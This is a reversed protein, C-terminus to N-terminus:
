GAYVQTNIEPLQITLELESKIKKTDKTDKSGSKIDVAKWDTLSFPQLNDNDHIFVRPSTLLEVLHLREEETMLGSSVNREADSTKGVTLTNSQGDEINFSDNNIEGLSKTNEKETFHNRFRWYSWGGSKNFWKLYTGCQVERKTIYLMVKKVVDFTIELQNIGILLPLMGEFGQNDNEGNSIFIRNVGKALQLQLTTSTRKNLISVQRAVNSYIAVDIPLGEFYTLYKNTDISPLLIRLEESESIRHGLLQKVSKLYKYTKSVSESVGTTKIIEIDFAFELYLKPDQFNFSTPLDVSITDSFNDQNILVSVIRKFNFFFINQIPTIDFVFSGVRIIARAATGIDTTFEVISNNYANLLNGQPEKTFTIAM